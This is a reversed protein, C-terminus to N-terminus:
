STLLHVSKLALLMAVCRAHSGCITYSSIQLALALIAPHVDKSAGELTPRRPQNYLHAFFSVQKERKPKEVRPQEQTTSQSLRRRLPITREDKTSTSTTRRAHATSDQAPADAAAQKPRLTKQSGQQETPGNNKRAPGAADGTHALTSDADPITGQAVGKAQARKAAKDAKQQKKREANSLEPEKDTSLSTKVVVGNTKSSDGNTTSSDGNLKRSAGNPASGGEGNGPIANEVENSDHKPM